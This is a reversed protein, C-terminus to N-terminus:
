ARINMNANQMSELKNTIHFEAHRKVKIIQIVDVVKAELEEYM